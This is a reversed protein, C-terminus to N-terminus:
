SKTKLAKFESPTYNSYKKFFKSFHSTSNFGMKESIEKISSNSYSLQRKIEIINRDIILSLLTKNLYQKTLENLRKTTIGFYNAYFHTNKEIKYNDDILRILTYIRENKYYLNADPEKFKLIYELISCFLHSSIRNHIDEEKEIMLILNSINKSIANSIKIIPLTNEEFLENIISNPPLFEKSFHFIYGECNEFFNDKLLQHIQWPKVLSLTNKKLIFEQFDIKYKLQSKTIYVIEYLEHQQPSFTFFDKKSEIDIKIFSFSKNKNLINKKNM